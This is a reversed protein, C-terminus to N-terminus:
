YEILYCYSFYMHLLLNNLADARYYPTISLPFKEFTQQLQKKEEEEFQIGTLYEFQELTRISHRLQWKWNTWDTLGSKSDIKATIEQQVKNYIM